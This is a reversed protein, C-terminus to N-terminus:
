QPAKISFHSWRFSRGHRQKYSRIPPIKPRDPIDEVVFREAREAGLILAARLQAAALEYHHHAVIDAQIRLIVPEYADPITWNGSEFESISLWLPPLTAETLLAAAFGEAAEDIAAHYIAAELRRITENRTVM